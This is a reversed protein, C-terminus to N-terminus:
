LPFSDKELISHWNSKQYLFRVVIVLHQEKNLIYFALYNNIPIFRIGWNALVSDEVLCFREPLHTLSNIQKTTEDLLHEAADKNKLSYELYDAAAMIDRKANSTIHIQYNM